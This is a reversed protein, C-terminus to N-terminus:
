DTLHRCHRNDPPQALTIESDTVTFTMISGNRIPLVKMFAKYQEMSNVSAEPFNTIYALLVAQMFRGHTFVAIRQKESARAKSFLTKVRELFQSFSETGPGDTSFPEMREWYQDAFPQREYITTGKCKEINVYTFEFVPWEVTEAEPFAAITPAASQKTRIYSSTVILDPPEPFCPPILEVQSHGLTTLKPTAPHETPLGANAESEGHRICWLTKM